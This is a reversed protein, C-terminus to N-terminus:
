MGFPLRKILYEPLGAEGMKRQTEAVDYKVRHRTITGQRSDYIAYSARPDRDRPQGVSGPNVIMPKEGLIVPEDVPFEEFSAGEDLQTSVFPRHSHGVLCVLTTFHGFCQQAIDASLVYELWFPERPSGHSLTFGDVETRTPLDVMYNFDEFAIQTITWWAAESAHQNFLEPSIKGCCALDHNGAIGRVEHRSLIALCERPDPGYGVMDGLSWIQDFGGRNQADGLVSQLAELNSHIDSVILAKM